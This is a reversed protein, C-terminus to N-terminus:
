ASAAAAAEAPLLVDVGYLVALAALKPPASRLVFGRGRALARRRFELMVALASSDFHQLGSADMCVPDVSERDLAQGLMLVTDAAERHTLTAPLLLM